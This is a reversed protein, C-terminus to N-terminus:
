TTQIPSPNSPPANRQANALKPPGGVPDFGNGKTSRPQNHIKSGTTLKYERLKTKDTTYCEKTDHNFGFCRACTSKITCASKTHSISNCITCMKQKSAFSLVPYTRWTRRPLFIHGTRKSSLPLTYVSDDQGRRGCSDTAGSNHLDPGKRLFEKAIELENRYHPNDHKFCMTVWDVLCKTMDEAVQSTM